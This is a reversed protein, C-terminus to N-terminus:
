ATSAAAQRAQAAEICALLADEPYPKGLVLTVGAEAAADKMREDASTIMIIPLHRTRAQGRVHRALEFGDMGPMEVDTVLVLPVEAEIMRAAEIGDEALAVRYGHRSLLRSTKVRVVKSDDAVMVLGGDLVAAVTSPAAIDPAPPHRVAPDASGHAAEAAARAAAEAAMRDAAQRAALDAAAQEAQRRVAMEAAEREAAALALARSEAEAAQRQAREAVRRAERATAKVAAEQAAARQSALERAHRQAEHLTDLAAVQRAEAERQRRRRARLMLALAAALALVGIAALAGLFTLLTPHM